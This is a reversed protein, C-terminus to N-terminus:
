IHTSAMRDLLVSTLAVAVRLSLPPAQNTVLYSLRPSPAMRVLTYSKTGALDSTLAHGESSYTLHLHQFREDSHYSTNKDPHSDEMVTIPHTGTQISNHRESSYTLYLHLDM